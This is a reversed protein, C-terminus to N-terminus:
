REILEQREPEVGCEDLLLGKLIGLKDADSKRYYVTVRGIQLIGNADNEMTVVVDCDIGKEAASKELTGAISAAVTSMATQMNEEELESVPVDIKGISGYIESLKLGSLPQLLALMMLLGSSIRVAEKAPGDGSLRLAVASAIGALTVRTLITHLLGTMGAKGDCGCIGAGFIIDHM